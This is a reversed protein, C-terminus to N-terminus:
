SLGEEQRLQKIADRGFELKSAIKSDPEVIRWFPTVESKSKGSNLDEIAAESVVRLFIATTVPCVGQADYKKALFQKMEDVSKSQGYPINKVHENIELPSSILMTTGNKLGAFDFTLLKVEPPRKSNLKDKWTKKAV